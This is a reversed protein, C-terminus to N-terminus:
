CNDKFSEKLSGRLAVKRDDFDEFNEICVFTRGSSVGLSLYV